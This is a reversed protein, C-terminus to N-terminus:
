TAISTHCLQGSAPTAPLSTAAALQDAPGDPTAMEEPNPGSSLDDLLHAM